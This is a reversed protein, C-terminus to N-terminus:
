LTLSNRTIKSRNFRNYAEKFFLLASKYHRATPAISAYGLRSSVLSCKGNLLYKEM